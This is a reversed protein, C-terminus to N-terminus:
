EGDRDQVGGTDRDNGRRLLEVLMSINNEDMHGKITRAASTPDTLSIAIRPPRPPPYNLQDNWKKPIKGGHYISNLTSPPIPSFEDLAAIKPFSLGDIDHLRRIRKRIAAYSMCACTEQSRGNGSNNTM